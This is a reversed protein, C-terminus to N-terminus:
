KSKKTKLKLKLYFKDCLKDLIKCTLMFIPILVLAWLDVKGGYIVSVIKEPMRTIYAYEGKFILDILYIGVASTFILAVLAISIITILTIKAKKVNRQSYERGTAYMDIVSVAFLSVFASFAIGERSIVGLLTLVLAVVFFIAGACARTIINPLSAKIMIEPLAIYGRKSQRLMERRPSNGAFFYLGVVSIFLYIALIQIPDILTFGSLVSLVVLSIVTMTQISFYRLYYSLNIYASSSIDAARLIGQLGGDSDSRRVLLGSSLRGRQTAQSSTENGEIPLREFYSEKYEDSDYEICNCTASADCLLAVGNVKDEVGYSVVTKGEARM